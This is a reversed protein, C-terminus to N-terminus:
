FLANESLSDEKKNFNYESITGLQPLHSMLWDALIHRHCFELPKEFCCLAIESYEKPVLDRLQQLLYLPGPEKEYAGLVENLYRETYIRKDDETHSSTKIQRLISETPAVSMWSACGNDAIFKPPYRSISVPYVGSKLLQQWKAFYSTYIKM